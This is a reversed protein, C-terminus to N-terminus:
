SDVFHSVSHEHGCTRVTRIGAGLPDAGQQPISREGQRV